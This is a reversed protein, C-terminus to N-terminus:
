PADEPTPLPQGRLILIIRDLVRFTPRGLAADAETRVATLMAREERAVKLVDRLTLATEENPHVPRGLYAAAVRRGHDINDTPGMSLHLDPHETM